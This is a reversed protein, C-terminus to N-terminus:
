WLRCRDDVKTTTKIEMAIMLEDNEDKEWGDDDNQEMMGDEVENWNNADEEIGAVEKVVGFSAKARKLSISAM